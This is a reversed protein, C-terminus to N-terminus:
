FELIYLHYRKTIERINSKVYIRAKLESPFLINLTVWYWLKNENISPKPDFVTFAIQWKNHKQYRTPPQLEGVPNKNVKIITSPENACAAALGTVQPRKKFSVKLPKSSYDLPFQELKM